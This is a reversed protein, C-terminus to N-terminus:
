NLLEFDADKAESVVGGFKDKGQGSVPSKTTYTYVLHASLFLLLAIIAGFSGKM